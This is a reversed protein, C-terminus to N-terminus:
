LGTREMPSAQHFVRSTFNLGQRALPSTSFALCGEVVAKSAAGPVQACLHVRHGTEIASLVDNMEGGGPSSGTAADAM